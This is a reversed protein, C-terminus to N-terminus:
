IEGGIIDTSIAEELWATIIHRHCFEGTKEWCCMVKGMLKNSLLIPDINSLIYKRYEEEYEQKTITGNKYSYLLAPTPNLERLYIGGWGEPTTLAVSVLRRDPVIKCARAFYSTYIKDNLIVVTDYKM